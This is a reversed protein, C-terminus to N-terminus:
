ELKSTTVELQELGSMGLLWETLMQTNSDNNSQIYGRPKIGDQILVAVYEEGYLEDMRVTVKYDRLDDVKVAFSYVYAPQQMLKEMSTEDILAVHSGKSMNEVIHDNVIQRVRYSTRTGFSYNLQYDNGWSVNNTFMDECNDFPYIQQSASVCGVIVSYGNISNEKNSWNFQVQYSQKLSEIDVVFNGYHVYADRDYEYNTTGDRVLAGSSPMKEIDHTNESVTEYLEHFIKDQEDGPVDSYYQSFNDIRIEEGYPNKRFLNKFTIILVIIVLLAFGIGILILPNVDKKPKTEGPYM